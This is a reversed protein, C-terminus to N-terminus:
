PHGALPLRGGKCGCFVCVGGETEAVGGVQFWVERWDIFLLVAANRLRQRLRVGRVASLAEEVQQIKTKNHCM